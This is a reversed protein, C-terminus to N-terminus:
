NLTVHRVGWKRRCDRENQKGGVYVGINRELSLVQPCLAWDSVRDKDLGSYPWPIM